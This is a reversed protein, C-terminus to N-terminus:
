RQGRRFFTSMAAACVLLLVTSPEPVALFTFHEAGLGPGTYHSKWQGFDDFDVFGNGTLDGLERGGSKRFNAAIIGLDTENVVTDCNVDGPDCAAETSAILSLGIDRYSNSANGQEVYYRGDPYFDMDSMNTFDILGPNGDSSLANPTSIQLGYGTTGANRQPLTFVDGGSLDIRFVQESGPMTGPQVTIEKILAGPTWNAALVDDVEYFALKLGTDNASGVSSGGTVDFSLNIQGVNFTAANKFTQRLERTNAIGREARATVAADWPDVTFVAPSQGYRDAPDGSAVVAASAAAALGVVGITAVAAVALRRTIAASVQHLRYM